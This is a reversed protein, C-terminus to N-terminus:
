SYRGGAGIEVNDTGSFHTLRSSDGLVEFSFHFRGNSETGNEILHLGKLFMEFFVSM